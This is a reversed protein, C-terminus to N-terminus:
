QVKYTGVNMATGVKTADLYVNGGAKVADILVNIREMLPSFDIQPSQVPSTKDNQLSSPLTKSNKDGFLNTGAIISDNKDLLGPAAVIDDNKSLELLKDEKTPIQAAISGVIEQMLTLEKNSGTLAGTLAKVSDVVEVFPSLDIQSSRSPSSTASSKKDLLGPAAIFDDNKSLEFLGGEKTSIQTKGDAPSMVDGATLAKIAAYGAIAAAVAVAVGVGFTLAANTALTASLIGLKIGLEIVSKGINKLVAAGQLIISGLITEELFAGIARKKNGTDLLTLKYMEVANQFGLTALISGGLGLESAKSKTIFTQIAAISMLVLQTSKLIAYGAALPGLIKGFTNAITGVVGSIVSLIPSLIDVIPSVVALIPGALSVFIEKLKEIQQNIREQISQQKFQNALQDNGLQKKAKEYGVSAVLRDFAEKATEGEKASLKVLAEKDILSQALEDRGMGVAKAIAEQQIVNMKGFDASSGVQKAVEAAAGAIDGNLALLRAKELNLDKGTLLEAELESSISDEFNLLGSSIKSAQELNLGFQKSKVVSEALAATSGGLSLKLSASAKGVEKLVEKENIILKNQSAYAQAGGLIEATNDELSKGNALSLTQISALEENTYGAQERLKTFTILDADNLKANSGLTKGVAVMSEQLGKTNVAAEGSLNATDNLQSNLKSAEQYSLNFKKATDGALNDVSQLADVFQKVLFTAVITPDQLSTKLQNGAEKVGAKVVEFKNAFKDTAKGDAELKKAMEAMKENVKDLGLANSLGGLGMKDLAAKTGAVAAGGVGMLENLREEQKIRQNLRGEIVSSLRDEGQLENVIARHALKSKTLQKEEERDLAQGRQKQILESITSGLIDKSIKLDNRKQEYQQQLIKLEKGSLENIGEQDYKLKRGIDSMGTMTKTALNLGSNTSKIEDVMKHFAVVTENIDSNLENLERNAANLNTTLIEAQAAADGVASANWNKFPNEKGLDRYVKELRSLLERIQEPTVM